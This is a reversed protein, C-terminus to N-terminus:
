TGRSASLRELRVSVLMEALREDFTGGSSRGHRDAMYQHWRSPHRPEGGVMWITQQGRETAARALWDVRVSLAGRMSGTLGSVGWAGLLAGAGSLGAEIHRHWMPEDEATLALDNLERVTATPQQFINVVVVRDFGLLRRAREVANLTRVGTPGYPPNLLVALLTDLSVGTVPVGMM